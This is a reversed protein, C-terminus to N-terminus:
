AWVFVIRCRPKKIEILNLYSKLSVMLSVLDKNLTSESFRFNECLSRFNVKFIGTEMSKEYSNQSFNKAETPDGSSGIFPNEYIDM